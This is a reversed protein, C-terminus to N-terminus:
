GRLSSPSSVRVAKRTREERLDTLQEDVIRASDEFSALLLSIPVEFLSTTCRSTM